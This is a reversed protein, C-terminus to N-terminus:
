RRREVLDLAREAVTVTEQAPPKVEISYTHTGASAAEDVIFSSVIQNLRGGLEVYNLTPSGGGDYVTALRQAPLEVLTGQWIETSGRKIRVLVNGGDGGSLNIWRVRLAWAVKVPRGGIVTLAASEVETWDDGASLTAIGATYDANSNSAAGESLPGYTISGDVLLDGDISVDTNISVGSGDVVFPYFASGASAQAIAFSDAAIIFSGTSGDIEYGTIRGNVNLVLAARAALGDTVSFLSTISAENDGVTSTLSTLQSAQTADASQLTSIASANDGISVDLGNFVSALTGRSGAQVTAENLIFASGGGAEAGLLTFIQAFADDQTARATQETLIAAENDDVRVALLQRANAEATDGDVRLSTETLIAAENDDVRGALLQRASAEALDASVRLSAENLIAADADDVRGALLDRANAAVLEGSERTERESIIKVGVPQGELFGLAEDYAQLDRMAASLRLVAEGFYEDLEGARDSVADLDDIVEQATRGGVKGTDTAVLDGTTVTGLILRDGIVGFQSVYSVAVQYQTEPELGNIPVIETSIPYTGVVQWGSDDDDWAEGDAPDLYPRYEVRFAQATVNDADAAVNIAPQNGTSATAAFVGLEPAAVSYIDPATLGPPTPPTPDLGLAFAHKGDTESVFTIQVIDRRPDFERKVCLCEVGDLLFGPEDITFVDGPEIQAMHGKMPVTGRIPERSDVIDYAALQAPQHTNTTQIAVYPYDIGRERVGGDATVYSAVSVKSQAVMEWDHTEMVCRPIITNLRDLKDAGVEIEFPGATDGADVTVISTRPTRVICSIKGGKRAYRGGGAQLMALLVQHKDDKTTPLASVTWGNADAVNAGEIFAAVDVGSVAAGIGGVLVDNEYYGLVWKLAHLYPNESWVWTSADDLRCAGDGGPWTSDQRPDWCYIGEVVQLVKPEGNPWRERNKDMAMTHMACAKGSLKYSSGWAPMTGGITPDNQDSPSQLASSPQAGLSYEGWFIDNWTGSSQRGYPGSFTVTEGDATCTGFSKVPGAGSYVTVISQYRNDKGWEDRHVIQGGVAKRGVVFPIAADPDARWDTASGAADVQPTLVANVVGLAVSGLVAGSTLFGGVASGIGYATTAGVGASTLTAGVVAKIAVAATTAIAPM